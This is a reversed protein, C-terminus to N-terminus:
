AKVPEYRLIVAGGQTTSSEILKLPVQGEAPKFLPNGGGLIVPVVCVRIEDILGAKLLSDALEASGFIFITKGDEQKLRTLEPIPDSVVRANNWGPETMTRSVAIKAIGNMYAKITDESEATPWYSAMIALLVAGVALLIPRRYRSFASTKGAKDTKESIKGGKDAAKKEGKVAAQKPNADVEMAAAQAARRAAAIYDARDTEAAPKGRAASQSARVRELIKKVDPAGSGPELLENSADSPMVDAPDISPAPDIMPRESARSEAKKGPLLRKGLSALLSAKAPAQALAATAAEPTRTAAEIAIASTGSM